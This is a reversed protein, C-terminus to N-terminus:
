RNFNEHLEDFKINYESSILPFAPLKLWCLNMCIDNNGNSSNCKTHSKILIENVIIHLVTDMCKPICNTEM